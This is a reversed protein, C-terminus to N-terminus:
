MRAASVVGLPSLARDPDEQGLRQGEGDGGARFGDQEKGLFVMEDRKSLTTVVQGSDSPASFLRVNDIKPLLVDGENFAAGAKKRGAAAEETLSGVDRQLSPNARVARVIGNYNDALSAAIMKGENTNTYGGLGVSGGGGGGYGGLVGGLRFDTKSANGEAAAVQVGSRSDALLMSTQAEKFKLGGAVGSGIAGVVQGGKGFLPALAGVTGGVGGADNAAFVVAPTLIFDATVMQGGGMNSGQRLQGSSGLAREQMMNQMAVGREVVIFCNSQQIMLRILGVPSGLQYQSLSRIVFDQPEVVTVAGMPKDCRELDSAAGQAGSPGASGTVPQAQGPVSTSLGGVLVALMVGRWRKMAWGGTRITLGWPMKQGGAMGTLGVLAEGAAGPIAAHAGRAARRSRDAGRAFSRPRGAHRRRVLAPAPRPAPWPATARHTTEALVDPTSWPMEVFLEPQPARVGILYYGGDETPGVVVDIAPDALADVARQLLTVPLTPTDSDIAVAGHHGSELLRRLVGALRVGLDPGQQPLLALDPALASFMAGHDPPAYAVVPTAQALARVQEIKDLLFCRYLGAAEAPSLPPCLRTKVQGALPAKAMIAVAVSAFPRPTLM